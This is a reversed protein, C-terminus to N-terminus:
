STKSTVKRLQDWDWEEVTQTNRSDLSDPQADRTEDFENTLQNIKRILDEEKKEESMRRERSSSLLRNKQSKKYLKGLRKRILFRPPLTQRRSSELLVIKMM